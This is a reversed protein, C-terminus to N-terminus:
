QELVALCIQSSVSCDALVQVQSAQPASMQSGRFRQRYFEQQRLHDKVDRGAEVNKSELAVNRVM